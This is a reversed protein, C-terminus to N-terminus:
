PRQLHRREGHLASHNM